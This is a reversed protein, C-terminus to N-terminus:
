RAGAGRNSVGARRPQARFSRCDDGANIEVLAFEAARRIADSTRWGTRACDLIASAVHVRVNNQHIPVDRCTDDLVSRMLGVLEIDFMRPEKTIIAM